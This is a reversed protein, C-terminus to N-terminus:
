ATIVALRAPGAPDMMVKSVSDYVMTPVRADHRPWALGRISPDGSRAFAAWASSMARGLAQAGPTNGTATAWREVNDTAFPIDICHFSGWRGELNPCAYTMYWTWAATGQATKLNAFHVSNNRGAMAAMVRSLHGPPLGPFATRFADLAAGRNDAPINAMRRLLEAEDFEPLAGGSEDRVSGVVLPVSASVAPARELFPVEPITVGDVVPSWGPARRRAGGITLNTPQGVALRRAVKQGAEILAATPIAQLRFLERGIGLEALVARTFGRARDSDNGLLSAGSHIMAKHFLGAAAPMGMLTSVKSGGGSQGFITVNGPDGGFAAINTQVWKLAAVLDLVGANGSQAYATGGVESLDMYGLPGLRHNVSVFIVGHNAAMRSGDYGALEQASGATYGGGHIWVMVPARRADVRGWINLRLCDEGAYGDDWHFLWAEEDNAWGTRQQQPCVPGWNMCSRTGAWRPPPGPPLFRAAGGADAAYPIGKFIRVDADRYGRVRGQATDVLVAPDVAAARVAGLSQAQAAPTAALAGAAAIGALVERRDIAM